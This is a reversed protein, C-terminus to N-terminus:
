NVSALKTFRSSPLPIPLSSILKHGMYALFYISSLLHYTWRAKPVIPARCSSKGERFLKPEMISTLYQTQNLGYSTVHNLIHPGVDGEESFQPPPPASRGERVWALSYPEPAARPGEPQKLTPPPAPAELPTGMCGHWVVAVCM